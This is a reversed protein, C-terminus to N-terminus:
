WIDSGLGPGVPRITRLPIGILVFAVKSLASQNSRLFVDRRKHVASVAAIHTPEIKEAQHEILQFFFANGPINGVQAARFAVGCRQKGGNGTPEPCCCVQEIGKFSEMCVVQGADAGIFSRLKGVGRKLCDSSEDTLVIHAVNLSPEWARNRLYRLVCYERDNVDITIEILRDASPELIKIRSKNRAAKQDDVIVRAKAPVTGFAGHIFEKGILRLAEDRKRVTRSTDNDSLATWRAMMPILVASRQSKAGCRRRLRSRNTQDGSCRLRAFIDPMLLSTLRGPVLSTLRGPCGADAKQAVVADTSGM